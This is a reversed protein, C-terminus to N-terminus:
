SLKIPSVNIKALPKGTILPPQNLTAGGPVGGTLGASPVRTMIGYGAAANALGAVGNLATSMGQMDAGANYAGQLEMPLIGSSRAAESNLMNVNEGLRNLRLKNNFGLRGYSSVKSLDKAYGRGKELAGLLQRGMSDTIEKPAGPNAALYETSTDGQPTMYQAIQDAISQQATEQKEKSYDPVSTTVVADRRRDIDAQRAMEANQVAQQKKRIASQSMSTTVTSGISALAAAIAAGAIWPM